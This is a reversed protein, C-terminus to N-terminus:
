EIKQQTETLSLLENKIMEELEVTKVKSLKKNKPAKKHINKKREVQIKKFDNEAQKLNAINKFIKESPM